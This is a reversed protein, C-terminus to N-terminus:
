MKDPPRISPTQEATDIPTTAGADTNEVEAGGVSENLVSLLRYRERHKKVGM